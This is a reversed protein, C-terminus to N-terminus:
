SCFSIQNLKTFQKQELVDFMPEVKGPTRRFISSRSRQPAAKVKARIGSGRVSPHVRFHSRLRQGETFCAPLSVLIKTLTRFM